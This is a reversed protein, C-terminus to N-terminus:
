KRIPKAATRIARSNLRFRAIIIYFIQFIAEIAILALLLASSSLTNLILTALVAKGSAWALYSNRGGALSINRAIVATSLLTSVYILAATVVIVTDKTSLMQTANTAWLVCLILINAIFGLSVGALLGQFQARKAEAPNHERISRSFRIEYLPALIYQATTCFGGAIRAVVAWTNSFQGLGVIAINTTNFAAMAAFSGGNIASYRLLYSLLETTPQRLGRAFSPLWQHWKKWAVLVGAASMSVIAALVLSIQSESTTCALLTAVFSVIGLVLRAAAIVEYDQDRVAVAIMITYCGQVLGMLSSWLIISSTHRSLPFTALVAMAFFFASFLVISSSALATDAEDSHSISPLINTISWNGITAAITAFSATVVLFSLESFRGFFPPLIAALFTLGQGLFSLRAKWAAEM